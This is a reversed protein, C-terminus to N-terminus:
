YKSLIETVFANYEAFKLPKTDKQRLIALEDNQSYRTRITAVIKIDREEMGEFDKKDFRFTDYEYYTEFNGENNIHQKTEVNMNVDVITYDVVVDQPIINSQTKFKTMM